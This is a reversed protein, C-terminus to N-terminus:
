PHQSASCAPKTHVSFGRSAAFIPLYLSLLHRHQMLSSFKLANTSVFSVKVMSTAASSSDRRPSHGLQSKTETWSVEADSGEDKM